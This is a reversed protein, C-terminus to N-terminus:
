KWKKPRGNLIKRAFPISLYIVFAVFLGVLVWMAYFAVVIALIILMVIIFDNM